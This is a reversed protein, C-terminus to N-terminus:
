VLSFTGISSEPLGAMFTGRHGGAELGQACIADAGIEAWGKAEAVTTATGILYVGRARLADAQARTLIGFTFSAASPATEVIAAFQPEFAQAWQNPISQPPLGYRERWPALLEMGTKVAAPDPDTPPLVFTNVAFPRDTAGRITAVSAKLQEASSGAAAFSGLGGVNSVAIAIAETTAGLMPAQIIPIALQDLM